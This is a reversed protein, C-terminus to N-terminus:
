GAAKRGILLLECARDLKANILLYAIRGVWLVRLPLVVVDPELASCLRPEVILSGDSTFHALIDLLRKRALVLTHTPQDGLVLLADRTEAGLDFVKISHHRLRGQGHMRVDLAEDEFAFAGIAHHEM